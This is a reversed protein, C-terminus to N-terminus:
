AFGNGTVKEFATRREYCARCKGCPENGKEYCSWTKNMPVGMEVAMGIIDQKLYNILPTVLRIQGKTGVDVLERLKKVAEYTSDYHTQELESPDTKNVCLYVESAGVKDAFAVAMAVFIVNRFPVNTTDQEESDKFIVPPTPLNGRVIISSNFINLDSINLTTITHLRNEEGDNVTLGASAVIDMLALHENDYNKQGYNFFLPYIKKDYHRLLYYLAVSSDLGGSALLVASNTTM